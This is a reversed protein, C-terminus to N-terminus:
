LKNSILPSSTRSDHLGRRYLSWCPKCRHCRSHLDQYTWKIFQTCHICIEIGNKFPCRKRDKIVFLSKLVLQIFLVFCKNILNYKFQVRSFTYLILMLLSAKSYFLFAQFGFLILSFVMECQLIISVYWLRYPPIYSYPQMCVTSTYLILYIKM